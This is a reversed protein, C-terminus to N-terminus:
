VSASLSTRAPPRYARPALRGIAAQVAALNAKLGRERCIRLWRGASTHGRSGNCPFCSLLLNDSSWSGGLSEPKVHDLTAQEGNSDLATGCWVCRTVMAREIVAHLRTAHRRTTKSGYDRSYRRWEGADLVAGRLPEMDRREPLLDDLLSALAPSVQSFSLERCAHLEVRVAAATLLRHLTLRPLTDLGACDLALQRM